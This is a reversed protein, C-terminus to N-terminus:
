NKLFREALLPTAISQNTGRYSLSVPSGSWCEFKPRVTVLAVSSTLLWLLIANLLGTQPVVKQLGKKLYWTFPVDSVVYIHAPEAAKEM